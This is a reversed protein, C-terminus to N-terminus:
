VPDTLIISIYFCQFSEKTSKKKKKAKLYKKNCILESNFKNKIIYSVKEWIRMYKDFFLEDQIGFCM